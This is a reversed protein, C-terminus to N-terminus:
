ACAHDGDEYRITSDNNNDTQLWKPITMKIAPAYVLSQRATGKLEVSTIDAMHHIMSSIMRQADAEKRQINALVAGEQDSIILHCQVPRKQGFRWCRRVAQYYAEWSDSLGLFVVRNCNQLNMGHGAISPKSTLVRIHGNAFGQLRSTKDDISDSGAVQVAGRMMRTAADGEANLDCWVLWQEDDSNVLEVAKAVRLDISAKRARRRDILTQAPQVFLAGQAMATEPTSEVIHETTTLPPLVFTSGDYGLDAPNQVMVSWSCLWRWWDNEAHGKIRWSQTDGGDHIFFTALMESRRMVGLFESHGALEMYDNPAPTATCALRYPTDSFQDIIAAKTKGDMSKMVSSEDLVVGVFLSSEFRDLMEYNTITISPMPEVPKRHYEVHVGFKEGERVTQEAVALPALILVNGGTQRTVLDAWVLQMATKGLGCGAFIAARGKRCAWRVIDRQFPYLRPNLREGPDFGTSQSVIAKRALFEEYESVGERGGETEAGQGLVPKWLGPM